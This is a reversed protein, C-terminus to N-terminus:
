ATKLSILLDELVRNIWSRVPPREERLKTEIEYCIGEVHAEIVLKLAFVYRKKKLEFAKEVVLCTDLPSGDNAASIILTKLNEMDEPCLYIDSGDKMGKTWTYGLASRSTCMIINQNKLLIARGVSDTKIFPWTKCMQSYSTRKTDM